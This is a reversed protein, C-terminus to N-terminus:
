IIELITSRCEHCSNKKKTWEAMCILCGGHYGNNSCNLKLENKNTMCINCIENNTELKHIDILQVKIEEINKHIKNFTDYNIEDFFQHYLVRNRLTNLIMLQTIAPTYINEFISNIMLFIFPIGLFIAISLYINELIEKIFMFFVIISLTIYFILFGCKKKLRFDIIDENIIEDINDIINDM